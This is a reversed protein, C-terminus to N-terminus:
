WPSGRYPWRWRALWCCCCCFTGFNNFKTSKPMRSDFCKISRWSTEFNLLISIKLVDTDFVFSFTSQRCLSRHLNRGMYRLDALHLTKLSLKGCLNLCSYTLFQVWVQARFTLSYSILPFYTALVM